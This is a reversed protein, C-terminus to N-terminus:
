YTKTLTAIESYINNLPDAAGWQVTVVLTNSVTTDFTTNNVVSFNAGEFVNAANKSYSFGGTSVISGVGPGGLQRITFHVNLEWHKDTTGPMTILGTDALLISGAKIRIEMTTNNKSSIDGGMHLKFSDGVQFANAPITLTGVGGDLLSTEVTTNTVPTSNNTQAFLGYLTGLGGGIGSLPSAQTGNGGITLGDTYVGNFEVIPNQPDTNDVSVVNSGDDTVSLVTAAVLPNGVQGNGTITIGDTNVGNFVVVPKQTDTNDVTVVTNGDDTVSQVYDSLFADKTAAVTIYDDGRRTDKVGMPILADGPVINLLRKIRKWYIFNLIDM